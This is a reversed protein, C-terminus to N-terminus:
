GAVGLFVLMARELRGMDADELRGIRRGLRQRPVTMIKDVMLRCSSKLGNGITPSVAPRAVPADTPNTTLLCITVSALDSFRDSQLVVAPRPKSAYDPGGSATWIEGRRM